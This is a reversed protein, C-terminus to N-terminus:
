NEKISTKGSEGVPPLRSDLRNACLHIFTLVVLDNLQAVVAAFPREIGTAVVTISLISDRPTKRFALLSKGKSIQM